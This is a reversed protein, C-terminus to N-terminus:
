TSYQMRYLCHVFQCAAVRGVYVLQQVSHLMLCSIHWINGEPSCFHSFVASSMLPSNVLQIHLYAARKWTLEYPPTLATKTM